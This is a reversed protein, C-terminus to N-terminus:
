KFHKNLKLPLSLVSSPCLSLSLSLIGLLSWVTRVSVLEPSLRVVMLDHGSGLDLTLREVSQAM